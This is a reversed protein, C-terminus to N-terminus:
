GARAQEGDEGLERAASQGQVLQRLGARSQEPPEKGTDRRCAAVCSMDVVMEVIGYARADHQHVRRERGRRMDVAGHRVGSQAM